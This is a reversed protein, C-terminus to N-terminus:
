FDSLLRSFNTRHNFLILATASIAGSVASLSWGFIIIIGTFLVPLMVLSAVFPVRCVLYSGLWVIAGLGAYVPTIGSIFGLWAAVGKGGRWNHFCPFSNGLILGLGIWSVLGNQLLYVSLLALGLARSIDLLLVVGAWLLGAQRCVNISGANQSHKERPDSKQLAKFLIIAFNVSGTLYAGAFLAVFKITEPM